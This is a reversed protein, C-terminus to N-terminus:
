APGASTVVTGVAGEAAAGLSSLATIVGRRGGGEVFRLVAEIKPGMSGSGFEGSRHMERLEAVSVAGIDCAEPTGYGSVAHPVDTAILLCDAGVSAALRAATLDKDIVASVGNHGHGDPVVPIGGGGAAVVIWGADVLHVITRTELVEVPDPSAVVRRWGKEGFDRWVQGHREMRAAHARPHYAGIPKVPHTFAPDDPDVATRTVLAVVPRALGRDGLEKEIRDVITFGLTGQTQAGCWDLSVPPLEGAAIENKRLINGVQPGNGHTVIVEHGAAVLDALHVAAGAIARRQDDPAASGDPATMANGGLAVLIRM